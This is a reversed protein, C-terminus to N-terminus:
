DSAAVPPTRYLFINKFIICFECSFVHGLTEKKILNIITNVLNLHGTVFAGIEFATARFHKKFLINQFNEPFECSFM